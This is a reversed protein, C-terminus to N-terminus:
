DIIKKNKYNIREKKLSNEIFNIVRTKNGIYKM